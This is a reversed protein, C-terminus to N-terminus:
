RMSVTYYATLNIFNLTSATSCASGQYMTDKIRAISYSTRKFVLSERRHTLREPNEVREAM